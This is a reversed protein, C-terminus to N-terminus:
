FAMKTLIKILFFIKIVNQASAGNSKLVLNSLMAMKKCILFILYPLITMYYYFLPM